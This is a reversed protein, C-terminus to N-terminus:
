CFRTRSAPSMPFPRRRPWPQADIFKELARDAAPVRSAGAGHVSAFTPRTLDSGLQQEVYKALQRLSGAPGIIVGVPVEVGFIERLLNSFSLASLSDGGLDIFQADPDLDSGASGLLAQAARSITEIVPLEDAQERLTRLEDIQAEALNSYLQELREGYYAILKPRLLKGVGSLLGNATSC